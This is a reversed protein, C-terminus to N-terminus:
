PQIPPSSGLWTASAATACTSAPSVATLIFAPPLISRMGPRASTRATTSRSAATRDAVVVVHRDVEVASDAHRGRAAQERQQLRQV